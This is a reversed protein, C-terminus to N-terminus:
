DDGYDAGLHLLGQLRSTLAIIEKFIYKIILLKNYRQHRVKQKLIHLAGCNAIVNDFEDWKFFEHNKM